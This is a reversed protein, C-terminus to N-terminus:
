FQITNTPLYSILWNGPLKKSIFFLRTQTGDQNTRQVTSDYHLSTSNNNKLPITILVHFLITTHDSYHFWVYGFLLDSTWSKFYVYFITLFFPWCNPFKKFKGERFSVRSGNRARFISLQLFFTGLLFQDENFKKGHMRVIIIIRYESGGKRM